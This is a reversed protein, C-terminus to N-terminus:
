AKRRATRVYAAADDVRCSKRVNIDRWSSEGQSCALVRPTLYVAIAITHM